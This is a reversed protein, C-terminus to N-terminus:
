QESGGGMGYDGRLQPLIQTEGLANRYKRLRLMQVTSRKRRLGYINPVGLVGEDRRIERQLYETTTM